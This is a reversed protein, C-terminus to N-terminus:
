RQRLLYQLLQRSTSLLRAAARRSGRSRALAEDLMVARVETQVDALPKHGVTQRLVPLLDPAAALADRIVAHLRDLRLPKDLYARVGRTALMFSQAPEAAGSMAIVAPAPHRRELLDLVEPAGGDPLVVDLLVLDPWWNAVAIEAEGVSRCGRVDGYTEALAGHLSRLLARSDEVVLVREVPRATM